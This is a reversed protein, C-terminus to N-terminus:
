QNKRRMLIRGMLLGGEYLVIVPATILLLSLADGTPSLVALVAVGGVIFHRRYKSFIEPKVIGTVILFLMVLPLQFVVGMILSMTIYFSVYDAYRPKMEHYTPDIGFSYLFELASPLVVFYLFSVGGLFLFYSIPAFIRVYRKEHPYLGAAVFGWLERAMLPSAILLAAVMAIKLYTMFGEVTGTVLMKAKEAGYLSELVANPQHLVFGQITKSFILCFVLAGALYLVCFIVRRRLEELHEGISM